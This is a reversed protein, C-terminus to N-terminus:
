ASRARLAAGRGPGFVIQAYWLSFEMDEAQSPNPSRDMYVWPMSFFSSAFRQVLNTTAVLPDTPLDSGNIYMEVVARLSWNVVFGVDSVFRVRELWPETGAGLATAAATTGFARQALCGATFHAKLDSVATDDPFPAVQKIVKYISTAPIAITLAFLDIPKFTLGKGTAMQYIESVLPISWDANLMAGLADIVAKIADFLLDVLTKLGQIAFQAITEVLELLGKLSLVLLQDPNDGIAEFYGLANQFAQAGRGTQFDKALQDLQDLLQQPIAEATLLNARAPVRAQALNNVFADLLVNHSLRSEFGPMPPIAPNVANGISQSGSFSTIIGNV